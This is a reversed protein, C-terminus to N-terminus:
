SEDTGGVTCFDRRQVSENELENELELLDLCQRENLKSMLLEDSVALWLHFAEARNIAPSLFTTTRTREIM